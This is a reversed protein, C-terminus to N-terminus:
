YMYFIYYIYLIKYTYEHSSISYIEVFTFPFSRGVHFFHGYYAGDVKTGLQNFLHVNILILSFLLLIVLSFKGLSPPTLTGVSTATSTSTPSDSRESSKGNVQKTGNTGLQNSM